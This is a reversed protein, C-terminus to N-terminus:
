MSEWLSVTGRRGGTAALAAAVDEVPEGDVERQAHVATDADLDAGEVRQEPGRLELVGLGVDVFEGM